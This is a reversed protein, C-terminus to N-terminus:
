LSQYYRNLEEYLANIQQWGSLMDQLIASIHCPAGNQGHGDHGIWLYTEYDEDYNNLWVYLEHLMSDLFSDLTYKKDPLVITTQFDQGNPTDCQLNIEIQKGAPTIGLVVSQTNVKQLRKEFWKLKKDTTQM